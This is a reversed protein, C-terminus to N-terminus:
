CAPQVLNLMLKAGGHGDTRVDKVVYIAGRILLTDAQTPPSGTPFQSLQVGLAPMETNIPGPSGLSIDFREEMEGAGLPTLEIYAEDFVGSIPFTANSAYYIVAEGFVALCPGIVRNWDIAM